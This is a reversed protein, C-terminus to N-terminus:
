DFRTVLWNNNEKSVLVVNTGQPFEDNDIPEVMVYHKQEFEDKFVAEAPTGKRATGITIQALRGSFSTQSIASTEEKPVVKALGGGLFHSTYIAFVLAFTVALWGAFIEGLLQLSLYNFVLGSIAFLTLFMILWVLFPLKKLCLWSALASFGGQPGDLGADMDADFDFASDMVQGISFGILQGIIEMLAIVAVVGLAITFFSNAELLLFAYM